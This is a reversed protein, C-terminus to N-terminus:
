GQNRSKLYAILSLIGLILLAFVGIVIMLSGVPVWASEVLMGESTVYEAQAGFIRAIFGLVVLAISIYLANRKM